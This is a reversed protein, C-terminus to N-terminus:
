VYGELKAGLWSKLRDIVLFLVIYVGILQLMLPWLSDFERQRALRWIQLGMGPANLLCEVLLLEGFMWPLCREWAQTLTRMRILQNFRRAQNLGIAQATRNFCQRSWYIREQASIDHISALLGSAYLLLAAPIAALIWLQLLSSNLVIPYIISVNFAKQFLVMVMPAMLLIPLQPTRTQVQDTPMRSLPWHLSLELWILSMLILWLLIFGSSLFYTPM